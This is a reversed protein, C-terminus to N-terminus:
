RYLNRLYTDQSKGIIIKKIGSYMIFLGTNINSANHNIASVMSSGIWQLWVISDGFDWALWCSLRSCRNRTTVYHWYWSSAVASISVLCSLFYKHDYLLLVVVLGRFDCLLLVDIAQVIILARYDYLLLVVISGRCEFLPLMIILGRCDYLVLMVILWRYDFFVIFEAM